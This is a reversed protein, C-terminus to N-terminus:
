KRSAKKAPGYRQKLRRGLEEDSIVRGAEVDALGENVAAVFRTRYTLRTGRSKPITLTTSM